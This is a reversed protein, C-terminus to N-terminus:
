RRQVVSASSYWGRIQRNPSERTAQCQSVPRLDAFVVAFVDAPVGPEVDVAVNLALLSVWGAVVTSMGFEVVVVSGADRCIVVASVACPLSLPRPKQNRLARQSVM